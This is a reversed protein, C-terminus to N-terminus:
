DVIYRYLWYLRRQTPKSIWMVYYLAHKRYCLLFVLWYFTVICLHSSNSYNFCHSIINVRHDVSKMSYLYFM